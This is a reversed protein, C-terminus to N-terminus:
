RDGSARRAGVLRTNVREVEGIVSVSSTQREHAPTDDRSLILETEGRIVTLSLRVDHRLDRFTEEHAETLVRQEAAAAANGAYAGILVGLLAVGSCLIVDRATLPVAAEGAIYSLWGAGIGFAFAPPALFAAVTLIPSPHLRRPLEGFVRIAAVEAVIAIVIRAAFLAVIGGSQWLIGALAPGIVEGATAATDLAGIRRGSKRPDAAAVSAIAAAWAPRFAAKGSDDVARALAIGAFTPSMMYLLSSGINAASRWALGFVRGHRDSLWGFFPGTVLFVVASLSYIFGAQVESLGAYETALVPFIGHVMYASAAVLLGVLAPGALETHPHPSSPIGETGPLPSGQHDGGGQHDGMEEMGETEETERLGIWAALLPLFSLALSLVFLPKFSGGSAAIVVGALGAGAVGGVHKASAYWSYASAVRDRADRAVVGLSAVDRGAASIGQLARVGALTLFDGAVLLWAAALMRALSGGLYVARIGARDALWGAVPKLPLVLISRLSVLLGIEALSLGVSRAYLPLGFSLMGFTLRGFFGETVIAALAARPNRSRM